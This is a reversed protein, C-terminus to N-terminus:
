VKGFTLSTKRNSGKRRRLLRRLLGGGGGQKKSVVIALPGVAATGGEHKSGLYAKPPLALVNPTRLANCNDSPLVSPNQADMCVIEKIKPSKPSKLVEVKSDDEALMQDRLSSRKSLNKNNATTTMTGTTSFVKDFLAAERPSSLAKFQKGLNLITEQCEALKVSATTLEWGTQIPKEEQDISYKPIEKKEASELQLQLELCTAELDECCNNKDELEVELSSFRQLVKNLKVKAVSLQTDLDENISKQNEIQEEIMGKSFKLTELETQLRGISQESERLQNMLAESKETSLQLRAELDKKASEMKKLENKLGKNEEQLNCQIKEMQTLVNEGNSSALLPLISSKEESVHGNDSESFASDMGVKLKCESRSGDWGFHMKFKDKVSSVDQHTICNNMVWDLAFTLVTVFKELDAKGYLLDNCTHIFQQLVATLESMKWQFVRVLYHAPIASNKYPVPSQDKELRNEPTSDDTLSTPNIGEILRIIKRISESLNSPTQQNRSEEVPIDPSPLGKLSDVAPSSAPSKWTIYGSIHIPDSEGPHRSIAATDTASTSPHNIYVLSIRVDELLEDLSRGSVRNQGLIAELVDQLWDSSKRSSVDISKIEQKGNSFSSDGQPVPVLEKGTIDSHCEGSEKALTNVIANSPNSSVYCSEVPNDVSVIALKEMEVFDDMLSMDSVGLAKHEQPNKPKENRFNELESILANAWSGSSGLVDDNGRDFGSTTLSLENSIPSCRALEMSKQGSSLEGLQAEVQSLKSSMQACMIRSVHLEDNKKAIIEKLTKNEEEVGCLRETLFSIKKSPMEPSNERVILGGTTPNLKKRRTETQDRGLMEVESKMKAVAAPGPLRKRLLLRLRQCEAELKAAKKVSELHQKQLADASRRNFEREENRIELEKELMCFEYKLFANEKETSDLRAMLANFEAESQSKCKQLDEISKEKVQLAKSLHMNEAALNAFKKSTETVNEELKMRVKEFERSTKMVADQIRQEQKKRVSALQQMCEELAADLQTLREKAAVGLQLAEDLEQKLLVVEAEAKERGAIAEEAMKAHISVLDDKASCDCQVSALKENLNKMSRVLGVEKETLLTQGDIGKLSIEAKDSAVITKESSKKRWLWTKHEM